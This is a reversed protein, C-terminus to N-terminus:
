VRNGLRSILLRTLNAVECIRDLCAVSGVAGSWYQYPHGSCLMSQAYLQQLWDKKLVVVAGVVM